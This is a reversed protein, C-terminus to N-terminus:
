AAEECECVLGICGCNGCLDFRGKPCTAPMGQLVRKVRCWCGRCGAGAGTAATVQRISKAGNQVAEAVESEMVNLCYCVTQDGAQAKGPCTGSATTCSPKPITKM